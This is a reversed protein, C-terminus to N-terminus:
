LNLHQMIIMSFLKLYDEITKDKNETLLEKHYRQLEFDTVTVTNKKVKVQKQVSISSAQRTHKSVSKNLQFVSFVFM